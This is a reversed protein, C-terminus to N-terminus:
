DASFTLLWPTVRRVSAGHARAIARLAVEPDHLRYVGTVRQGALRRGTLVIVGQFYPRLEDVIETVPRDRAIVVGDLWAAMQSPAANGRVIGGTGASAWEGAGLTASATGPAGALDIRVTGHRVAVATSEHLLRLEFATGLVTARVDRAQVSFPRAPDPAVDFFADGALLRVRRQGADFAIAVASDPGLTMTSGDVLRLSRLEATGTVYDAQMRLAISPALVLALGAAMAAATIAAARRRFRRPRAPLTGGRPLPASAAIEPVAENRGTDGAGAAAGILGYVHSVEAWASAHRPDTSRWAEFRDRLDRDDPDDQLAILWDTAERAVSDGDREPTAAM